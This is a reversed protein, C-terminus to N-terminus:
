HIIFHYKEQIKKYLDILLVADLPNLDASQPRADKHSLANVQNSVMDVDAVKIESLAMKIGGTGLFSSIIELLQRLMIFHYGMIKNETIAEKFVQMLYLHYLFVDKDYNKLTLEGDHISLINRKTLNKNASNM